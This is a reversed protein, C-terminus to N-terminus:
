KGGTPEPRPREIRSFLDHRVNVNFRPGLATRLSAMDVIIDDFIMGVVNEAGELRL